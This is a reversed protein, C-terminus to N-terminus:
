GENPNTTRIIEVDDGWNQKAWALAEQETMNGPCYAKFGHDPLSAYYFEREIKM